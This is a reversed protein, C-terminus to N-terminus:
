RQEFFILLDYSAQNDEVEPELGLIDKRIQAAVAKMRKADDERNLAALVTALLYSTRGFEGTKAVSKYIDLARHLYRAADDNKGQQSHIWGIKHLSAAVKYGDGFNSVRIRLATTHMPHAEDFLGLGIYANGLQFYVRRVYLILPHRTESHVM